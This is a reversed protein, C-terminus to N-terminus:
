SSPLHDQNRNTHNKYKGKAKQYDRANTTITTEPQLKNRGKIRNAERLLGPLGAIEQTETTLTSKVPFSEEQLSHECLNGNLGTEESFIFSQFLAQGLLQTVEAQGLLRTAETTQV